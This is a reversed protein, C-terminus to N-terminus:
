GETPEVDFPSLFLLALFSLCLINMNMNISINM